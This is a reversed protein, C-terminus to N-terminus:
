RHNNLFEAEAAKFADAFNNSGRESITNLDIEADGEFCCKWWHIANPIPSKKTITMVLVRTTDCTIVEWDDIIGDSTVEIDYRLLKEFISREKHLVNLVKNKVIVKLEVGKVTITDPLVVRLVVEKRDQSWIYNDMKAGNKSWESNNMTDIKKSTVRPVCDVISAGNPGITISKGESLRTVNPALNNNRGEEEDDDSLCLSDWKSYDVM